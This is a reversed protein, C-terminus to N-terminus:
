GENVVIHQHAALFDVVDWVQGTRLDRISCEGPEFAPNTDFLRLDMLADELAYFHQQTGDPDANTWWDFLVEDREEEEDEDVQEGCLLAVGADTLRIHLGDSILYGDQILAAVAVPDEAQEVEGILSPNDYFSNLLEFTQPDM